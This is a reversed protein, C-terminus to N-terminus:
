KYRHVYRYQYEWWDQIFVTSFQSEAEKYGMLEKAKPFKKQVMYDALEHLM